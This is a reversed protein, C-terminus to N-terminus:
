IIVLKKKKKIWLILSGHSVTPCSKSKLVPLNFASLNKFEVYSRVQKRTFHNRPKLGATLKYNTELCLESLWSNM